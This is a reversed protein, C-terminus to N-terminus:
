AGYEAMRVTPLGSLCGSILHSKGSTNATSTIDTQSSWANSRLVMSSILIVKHYDPASFKLLLIIVSLVLLPFVHLFTKESQSYLFYTSTLKKKISNKAAACKSKAAFPNWRFGKYTQLNINFYRSELVYSLSHWQKNKSTRFCRIRWPDWCATCVNILTQLVGLDTAIIGLQNISFSLHLSIICHM